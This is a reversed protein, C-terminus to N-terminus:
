LIHFDFFFVWVVVFFDQVSIVDYGYELFWFWMFVRFGCQFGQWFPSCIGFFWWVHQVSFMLCLENFFTVCVPHKYFFLGFVFEYVGHFYRQLRLVLGCVLFDLLFHRILWFAQCFHCFFVM